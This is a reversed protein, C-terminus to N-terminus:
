ECGEETRMTARSPTPRRLGSANDVAADRNIAAGCVSKYENWSLPRKHPQTKSVEAWSQVEEATTGVDLIGNTDVVLFQDTCPTVAIVADEPRLTEHMELWALGEDARFMPYSSVAGEPHRVTLWQVVKRSMPTEASINLPRTRRKTRRKRRWYVNGIEFHGERNRRGLVTGAPRRGLHEFFSVFSSFRFEIGRGGYRPWRQNGPNRCLGRAITYATYEPTGTGGHIWGANPGFIGDPPRKTFQKRKSM